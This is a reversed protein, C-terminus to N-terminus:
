DPPEAALDRDVETVFRRVLRRTEALELRDRVPSWRALVAAVATEHVARGVKTLSLHASRRDAAGSRAMLGRRELGAILTTLTSRPVGIAAAVASPTLGDSEALVSTVAYESASLDVERLASRILAGSRADAMALDFLLGLDPLDTSM